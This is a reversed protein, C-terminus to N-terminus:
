CRFRFYLLYSLCLFSSLFSPLFRLFSPLFSAEKDLEKWIGLVYFDAVSFYLWPNSLVRYASEVINIKMSLVSHYVSVSHTPLPTFKSDLSLFYFNICIVDFRYPLCISIMYPRCCESM